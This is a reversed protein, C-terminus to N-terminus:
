EGDPLSFGRGEADTVKIKAAVEKIVKRLEVDATDFGKEPTPYDEIAKGWAPLPHLKGWDEEVQWALPQHMIIPVIRVGREKKGELAVPIEHTRIYGSALFNRSVLFIILHAEREHKEIVENWDEGGRIRNDTWPHILKQHSLITLNVDFKEKLAIDAHAYSVFVNVRVEPPNKRVAEPEVKNLVKTEDVELAPGTPAPVFVPGPKKEMEALHSVREYVGTEPKVEIWEVPKMGKLDSHINEFNERVVAALRQVEDVPGRLTIEIEGRGPHSRVLATASEWGLLVGYRWRVEGVIFRHTRVIFRTLVGHPLATYTYRLRAAAADKSWADDLKPSQVPLVAPVLFVGKKEDLAFCVEYKRMLDVLYRRMALTEKPLWEKTAALRLEGAPKAKEAGRLLSYIGNTIWGPNLVLAHSVRADDAYNLAIGLTHLWGRLENQEKADKVGHEGCLKRYGKMDLYPEKMGSLRNKVSMWEGPFTKRVSEMGDVLASLAALLDDRWAAKRSRCDMRVFARINPHEQQMTQEDVEFPHEELKNLVVLVPANGGYAEVMRLWYDADEMATGERGTLLLVYVCRETFFFQHMGHTIDQGAFDWFHAKITEGRVTMEWDRINVGPTEKERANFRNEVLRRVVSTKGAGGRGVLMIKVENLASGRAVTRFYYDLIEHPNAPKAKTGTTESFTPGLVETPLSLAPNDHLFLSALAKLKAIESPLTDLRNKNLRLHSLYKLEGIEPPLTRLYNEYVRLHRLVKLNGLEKPLASLQNRGLSLENLATLQCLTPPM